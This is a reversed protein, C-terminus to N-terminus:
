ILLIDRYFFIVSAPSYYFIVIFFYYVLNWIVVTEVTKTKPGSNTEYSLDRRMKRVLRRWKEARTKKTFIGWLWYEIIYVIDINKGAALEWFPNKGWAKWDGSGAARGVRGGTMSWLNDFQNTKWYEWTWLNYFHIRKWYKWIWLSDFHNTKWYKWNGMSGIQAM